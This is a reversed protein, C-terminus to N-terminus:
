TEGRLGRFDLLVKLAQQETAKIQTTMWNFVMADMEAAEACELLNLALDRAEAPSMQIRDGANSMQVIPKRTEAGFLSECLILKQESM